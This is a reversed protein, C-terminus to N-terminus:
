TENIDKVIQIGIGGVTPVSMKNGDGFFLEFEGSFTGDTDTDGSLWNYQVTGGSYCIIQATSSSIKLNNCNDSMSFTTATVGSLNFPISEDLVGRAKIKVVLAPLTDNRKIAFGKINISM